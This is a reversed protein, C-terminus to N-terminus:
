LRYDRLFNLLSFILLSIQRNFRQVYNHFYTSNLYTTVFILLDFIRRYHSFMFRTEFEGFNMTLFSSTM